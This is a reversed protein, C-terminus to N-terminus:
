KKMSSAVQELHTRVLFRTDQDYKILSKVKTSLWSKWNNERKGTARDRLGQLKVLGGEQVLDKIINELALVRKGKRELM